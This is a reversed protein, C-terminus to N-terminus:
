VCAKSRGSKLCESERKVAVVDFSVAKKSTSVPVLRFYRQKFDKYADLLNLIAQKTRIEMLNIEPCSTELKIEAEFHQIRFVAGTSSEHFDAGKNKITISDGVAKKGEPVTEINRNIYIGDKVDANILDIEMPLEISFMGLVFGIIEEEKM